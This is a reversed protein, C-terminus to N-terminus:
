SRSPSSHHWTESNGWGQGAGAEMVEALCDGVGDDEDGDDEDGDDGDGGGGGRAQGESDAEAAAQSQAQQLAADEDGDLEDSGAELKLRAQASPDNSTLDWESGGDGREGKINKHGM